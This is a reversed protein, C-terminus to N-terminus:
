KAAKYQHIKVYPTGRNIVAFVRYLLKCIVANRVSQPHKGEGCKRNYYARLEPDYQIASHVGNLLLSKLRQCRWQSVRDPGRHEGSQKPFPASGAFCALQRANSFRTFGETYVLLWGAIVPGIGPISVLLDYQGETTNYRRLLKNIKRDVQKLQTTLQDHQTQMQENIEGLDAVESTLINAQIGNTLATRMKVLRERWLLWGRLELLMKSPLNSPTLRDQFRWLYEALRRADIPDSKGRRIGLSLQVQIASVMVYCIGSAELLAALLLGYPGTHEFCVILEDLYFKGRKWQGIMKHIGKPSNVTQGTALETNQADTLHWDLRQKSIDIGIYYSAEM